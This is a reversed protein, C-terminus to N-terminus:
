LLSQYSMRLVNFSGGYAGGGEGAGIGIFYKSGEQGSNPGGGYTISSFLFACTVIAAKITIM